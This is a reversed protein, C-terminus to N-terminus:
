EITKKFMSKKLIIKSSGYNKIFPAKISNCHFCLKYSKKVTKIGCKECNHYHINNKISCEYCRIYGKTLKLCDKCYIKESSM